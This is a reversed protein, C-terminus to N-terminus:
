RRRPRWATVRAPRRRATPLISLVVRIVGAELSRTMEFGSHLFVDLMRQNAPLVDAEFSSIGKERAIAALRELLSTGIGQGQLRDLITFAAEAREAHVPNRDFSGVAVIGEPTEAVLAFRNEYDVVALHAGEPDNRPNGFFRYRLSEPSLKQHFALLGAKDSFRVPRLRLTSGNRLVVDTEYRAPYEPVSEADRPRTEAPTDRM